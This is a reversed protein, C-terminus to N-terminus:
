ISTRVWFKEENWNLGLTQMRRRQGGVGWEGGGEEGEREREREEKMAVRAGRGEAEAPM